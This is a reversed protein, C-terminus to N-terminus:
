KISTHTYIAWLSVKTIRSKSSERREGIDREEGKKKEKILVM